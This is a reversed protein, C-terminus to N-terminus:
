ENSSNSFDLIIIENQKEAQCANRNLGDWESKILM